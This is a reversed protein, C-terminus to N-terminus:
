LTVFGGPTGGGRTLGEIAKRVVLATSGDWSDAVAKASAGELVQITSVIVEAMKTHDRLLLAREGLLRRWARDMASSYTGGEAVMLHFVEWRRSAMTLLEEGSLTEGVEDGFVREIEGPSLSPTPGDDGVTFLYGKKGRREWADTATHSAAFYHVLAYSESRNGGGGGELYLRELQEAIRIDAEFQTVQLPARDGAAVDGVAACCVQPDPVPRRGYIEEFLTKLGRKAMAELVREMSGTVDLGVIIPVSSPNDASDRAERVGDKLARPDFAPFMADQTYIQQATTTPDNLNRARVYRDWDGPDFRGSGM